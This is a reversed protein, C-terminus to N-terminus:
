PGKEYKQPKWFHFDDYNLLNKYHHISVGFINKQQRLQGLLLLFSWQLTETIEFCPFFISWTPWFLSLHWIRQGKRLRQMLFVWVASNVLKIYNLPLSFAFYLNLHIFTYYKKKKKSNFYIFSSTEHPSMVHCDTFLAWEMKDKGNRGEHRNM